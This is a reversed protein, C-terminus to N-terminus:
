LLGDKTLNTRLNDEMWIKNESRLVTFNSLKEQLDSLNNFFICDTFSSEETYVSLTTDRVQHVPISEVALAEYFRMPFFNGNGLPSFVFRYGAIIRVYEEWNEITAPIIDIDIIKRAKELLEKRGHYSNRPCDITGIFVMKDKKPIDTPFKDKFFISPATRNVQLTLLYCDDADNVYHYLQEFSHLDHLDTVNWPFYSNLITENTLAVVKIKHSNCYHIFDPTKWILKNYGYHDDGIFLLQIGKLDKVSNITRTEGYLNLVAHQYSEFLHHRAFRTDCVIGVKSM